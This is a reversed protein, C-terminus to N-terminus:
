KALLKGGVERLIQDVSFSRVGNKDNLIFNEGNPTWTAYGLYDWWAEAEIHRPMKTLGTIESWFVSNGTSLGAGYLVGKNTIFIELNCGKGSLSTEKLMYTKPEEGPNELNWQFLTYFESQMDSTTYTAGPVVEIQQYDQNKVTAKGVAALYKGNPSFAVSTVQAYEVLRTKNDPLALFRSLAKLEVPKESTSTQYLFVKKNSITVLLPVVTGLGLIEGDYITPTSNVTKRGIDWVATKRKSRVFHDIALRTGDESIMIGHTNDPFKLEIKRTPKGETNVLTVIPGLKPELFIIHGGHSSVITKVDLIDKSKAHTRTKGNTIDVEVLKTDRPDSALLVRGSTLAFFRDGVLAVPEISTGIPFFVSLNRVRKTHIDFIVPPGKLDGEIDYTSNMLVFRESNSYGALGYPYLKEPKQLKGGAIATLCSGAHSNPTQLLVLLIAIFFM